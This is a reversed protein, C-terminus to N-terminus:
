YNYRNYAAKFDAGMDKFRATVTTLFEEDL